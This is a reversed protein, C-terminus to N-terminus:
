LNLLELLMIKENQNDELLDVTCIKELGAVWLVQDDKCLLVQKDKEIRSLKLDVFLKKVSRKKGKLRVPYIYDGARRRRLILGQELYAFPLIIFANKNNNKYFKVEEKELVSVNVCAGNYNNEGQTLKLFAVKDEIRKTILLRDRSVEFIIDKFVIYKGSHSNNTLAIIEDIIASYVDILDGKISEIISRILRKKIALDLKRFIILDLNIIDMKKYNLASEINKVKKLYKQTEAELYKKDEQIQAASNILTNKFNSNIKLIEPLINHRISNRTFDTDLNTADERYEIKFYDAIELIESKKLDILPRIFDGNIFDMGVLGQLSAGRIFNHLISEVSDDLHHATAIFDFKLEAKIQEALGLRIERACHEFGLKKEQSIQPVDRAEIYNKLGHKVCFARAFEADSDADKGRYMHNLHFCAIEINFEDKIMLLFHALVMSDVGGSLMLLIKKSEFTSARKKFFQFYREINKNM